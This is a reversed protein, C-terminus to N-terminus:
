RGHIFFIEAYERDREVSTPRLWFSGASHPMARVGRAHRHAVAGSGTFQNATRRRSSLHLVTDPDQPVKIRGQTVPLDRTRALRSLQLAPLSRTLVPFYQHFYHPHDNAPQADASREDTVRSRRPLLTGGSLRNIRIHRARDHEVVLAHPNSSEDDLGALRGSAVSM